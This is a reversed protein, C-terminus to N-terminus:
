VDDPPLTYSSMAHFNAYALLGTHSHLLQVFSSHEVVSVSQQHWLMCPQMVNCVQLLAFASATIFSANRMMRWQM